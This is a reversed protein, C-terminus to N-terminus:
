ACLKHVLSQDNEFVQLLRAAAGSPVNHGQEWARVTPTKVNLLVAFETQSLQLVAERLRKIKRANWRHPPDPLERTKGRLKRRGQQHELVEELGEILEQEIRM